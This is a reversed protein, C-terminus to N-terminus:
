ERGFRLPLYDVANHYYDEAPMIVTCTDTELHNGTRYLYARSKRATKLRPKPFIIIFTKAVTM